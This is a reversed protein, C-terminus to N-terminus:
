AEAKTMMRGTPMYVGLSRCAGIVGWGLGHISYVEVGVLRGGGLMAAAAAAAAGAFRCGCGCCHGGVGGEEVAGEHGRGDQMAYDPTGLCWGCGCVGGEQVDLGGDQVGVPAM